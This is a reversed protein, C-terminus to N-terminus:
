VLTQKLTIKRMLYRVLKPHEKRTDELTVKTACANLYMDTVISAECAGFPAAVVDKAKHGLYISVGIGNVDPKQNRLIATFGYGANDRYFDFDALTVHITKMIKIRM